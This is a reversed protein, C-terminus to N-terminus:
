QNRSARDAAREVATEDAGDKIIVAEFPTGAIFSQCVIRHQWAVPNGAVDLGAGISHYAAPRYYGGARTMRVRGSSKSRRM